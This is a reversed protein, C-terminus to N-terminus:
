KAQRDDVEIVALHGVAQNRSQTPLVTDSHFQETIGIFRLAGYTVAVPRRDRDHNRGSGGCSHGCTQLGAQDQEDIRDSADLDIREFKADVFQAPSDGFL